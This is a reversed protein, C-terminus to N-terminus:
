HSDNESKGPSVEYETYKPFTEMGKSMPTKKGAQADVIKANKKKMHMIALNKLVEEEDPPERRRGRLWAEWEPPVEQMFDDKVPPDYWRSTRQQGVSANRPIEYYKNGFHDTGKLTGSIQRPKFSNIFNQFVIMWLRRTPEQSM